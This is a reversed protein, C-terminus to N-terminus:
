PALSGRWGPPRRRSPTRTQWTPIALTRVGHSSRLEAAARELRDPERALLAVDYGQKAFEEVTARGVGANAGTVVVVKPM